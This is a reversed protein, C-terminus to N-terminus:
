MYNVSGHLRTKCCLCLRFTFDGFFIMLQKTLYPKVVLFDSYLSMHWDIDGEGIVDLGIVSLKGVEIVYSQISYPKVVPFDSYLSMHWDINGEWIV